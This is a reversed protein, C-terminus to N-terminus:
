PDKRVEAKQPRAVARLELHLQPKGFGAEPGGQTGSTHLDASCIKRRGMEIWASGRWSHHLWWWAHWQGRSVNGGRGILRRAMWHRLRTEHGGVHICIAGVHRCTLGNHFTM